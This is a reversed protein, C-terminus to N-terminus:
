RGRPKKAENELKGGIGILKILRSASPTFLIEVLESFLRYKQRTYPYWNAETKGSDADYIVSKSRTYGLLGEAGKQRGYGSAKTGGFPLDPNGETIMVNNVSVAGCELARAVRELQAKDSGWVSASLGFPTNNALALVEEESDFPIVPLLPGFTEEQILLMDDRINSLVAPMFINKDTDLTTGGCHIVAGKARADELHRRIIEMQFGATIGGIDADGSDGSGLVLGEVTRTLKALFEGYIGAQVYIREVSSCSQGANTLAGWAVGAAARELNANDFVIAPDKGGLELDVPILMEAAQALIKKGTRASGTFFIKDPKQAILKQATAGSGYCIFISQAILPSAAFIKEFLGQMPTIESPKFVVANGGAFGALVSTMGIHFPYNWPSIVLVTGLAERYIRSKKGLLTLPTAAKKDALIKPAAKVLWACNDLVGMIESVVADTRTKRTQGCLMDAIEERRRLIEGMLKRVADLREKLTTKQLLQAAARANHMTQAVAADDMEIINEM